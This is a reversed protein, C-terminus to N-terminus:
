KKNKGFHKKFYEIAKKYKKAATVALEREKEFWKIHEAQEAIRALAGRWAMQEINPIKKFVELEEERPDEWTIADALMIGEAFGEPAFTPSFDIIAPPLEPHYLFNGALDAHSLRHGNKIPELYPEIERYLELFEGEYDFPAEGLAVAHSASWSHRPAEFFEPKEVNSLLDHLERSAKLKEEYKGPIYKGELFNRAVYGDEVWNGHISKVPKGFRVRKTEPLKSFVESLWNLIDEGEWEKPKLVIHGALYSTGFGGPLLVPETESGFARATEITPPNIIIGSDVKM